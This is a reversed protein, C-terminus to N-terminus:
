LCGGVQSIFLTREAVLLSRYRPCRLLLTGMVLVEVVVEVVGVLAAWVREVVEEEITEVALLMDGVLHDMLGYEGGEL